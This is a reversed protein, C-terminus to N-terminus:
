GFLIDEESSFWLSLLLLTACICCASVCSTSNNFKRWCCCCCCCGSGVSCACRGDNGISTSAPIPTWLELTLFVHTNKRCKWQSKNYIGSPLICCGIGGLVFSQRCRIWIDSKVYLVYRTLVQKVSQPFWLVLLPLPNLSAPTETASTPSPESM